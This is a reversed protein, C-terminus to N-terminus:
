KIYSLLDQHNSRSLDEIAEVNEKFGEMLKKYIKVEEGNLISIDVKKKSGENQEDRINDLASKLKNLM